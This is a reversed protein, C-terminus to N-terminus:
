LRSETLDFWIQEFVKVILDHYVDSNLSLYCALLDELDKSARLNNELIMEVMSERFDRQPDFSSKVVAFSDSVNKKESFRSSKTTCSVAMKRSYSQIKRSAIRPSNSRIKVGSSSSFSKRISSNMKQEKFSKMRGEKVVKVSLSGTRYQVPETEKKKIESVMDSFKPPKTLIPPLELEPILDFGNIKEFKQNLSDNGDMDIIIDTASSSIRCSCSSSWSSLSEFPDSVSVPDSGFEPLLYEYLNQDTSSSEIPSSSNEPTSDLNTRFSCGASIVSTTTSIRPSSKITTRSIKTRRKSSKRPPNYPPFQTDTSKPNIPSSFLKETKFPDTTFYYSHRPNSFQPNKPQTIPTTPTPHKKNNPNKQTNTHNKTRSSMDKLKYFWANPIMDSLRFRHNGM